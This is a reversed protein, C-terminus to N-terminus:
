LIPQKENKMKKMKKILECEAQNKFTILSKQRSMNTQSLLCLILLVTWQHQAIASSQSEWFYPDYGLECVGKTRFRRKQILHVQKKNIVLYLMNLVWMYLCILTYLSYNFTTTNNSYALGSPEVPALCPGPPPESLTRDTCTAAVTPRGWAAGVSPRHTLGQGVAPRLSRWYGDLYFYEAPLSTQNPCARGLSGLRVTGM